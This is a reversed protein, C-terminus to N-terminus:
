PEPLAFITKQRTYTVFGPPSAPPKKVHRRATHDVACLASKDASSYYAALSAAYEIVGDPVARGEARIITHSGPIDKAHLWIDGPAAAKTIADNQANNRGVLITFGGREFRRPGSPKIKPAKKPSRNRVYGAAALEARIETLEGYTEARETEDAVSELYRLEMLARERREASVVAARKDKGYRKFYKNATGVAGLEPDVPIVVEGGGNWDQVALSEAGPAAMHAYATLLEGYARYKGRGESEALAKDIADLKKRCKDAASKVLRKIDAARQAQRYAADKVAYFREAAESPGSVREAEYLSYNRITVCAFDVARGGDRYIYAAGSDAERILEAFIGAMRTEDGGARAAIEEAMVPSIGEFATKLGGRAAEAFQEASLATPDLRGGPPLGLPLGPLVQRFGSVSAPVRRLADLIIGAGDTLIVNSHKGMMEAVLVRRRPEGFEDRSEVRIEIVRDFGRQGVSVIRGGGIQKRAVMLFLPAAAPNERATDTLCVRPCAAACTALLRRNVGGRASIVLTDADPQAIKDIRAGSLAANLERAIARVTFGDFPM